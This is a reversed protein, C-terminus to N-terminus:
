RLLDLQRAKAVAEIRNRAHLKGLISGSHKKVTEPSIVLQEAIERNTLGAAILRLVEAERETLPQPLAMDAAPALESSLGFAALLQAVYDPMVSRSRAAQLLRGMPLGLDVFLRQYGEPQALRLARELLILAGPQDGLSQRALAQLALAELSIGTRQEAEAAALVHDLRTLARKVLAPEGALLLVRALALGALEHGPAASVDPETAKAWTLATNLQNDALWLEVQLRQWHEPWDPLPTKDVLPQAQALHQAASAHDGAALALRASGLHGAMLGRLDGGLEARELGRTLHAQAEDFAGWEYLVEGLRSDVCGLLPLPLSGWNAPERIVALAERWYQAALRLQGQRLALDALASLPPILMFPFSSQRGRELAVAYRQRANSWQGVFRYTDGLSGNVMAHFFFDDPPLDREAQAAYAEALPLNNQFCALGCRVAMIRAMQWRQAAAPAQRLQAEVEDIRQSAEEIAGSFALMGARIIGFLPYNAAWAEPLSSLWHQVVRYEGRWLKVMMHREAIEIVRERDGGALAHDFAPESWDQAAYWAAARRHLTPVIEGQERQLVVQLFDAFLPHYRYWGHQDDLAQVFLRERELRELMAQAGPAGTVAECLPSTLRELLSTQLLFARVEAPLRAVVEESLYQAVYRQRGSLSAPPLAAPGRQRLSLAALQLGAVWGELQGQLQQVTAPPLAAGLARHLFAGAEELSFALDAQQLEFLQGRARYRALPLPPETRSGIVFHLLPPLNDLLFAVLEHLAPEEILHFDDLVVVLPAARQSAANLFAAALAQPEAEQTSALLDLQSGALEPQVLEYAAALYRFFRRPDDEDGSLTLWAVSVPAADAWTTLLTTKGYGAAAAVVTLRHHLTQESLLQTLRPRAVLAAPSEPVHLKTALLSPRM